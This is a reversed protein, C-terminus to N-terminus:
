ATGKSNLGNIQLTIISINTNITTMKDKITNNKTNENINQTKTITARGEKQQMEAISM